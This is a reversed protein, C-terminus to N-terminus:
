TQSFNNNHRYIKHTKINNNHAINRKSNPNDKLITIGKVTNEAAIKLIVHGWKNAQKLNAM